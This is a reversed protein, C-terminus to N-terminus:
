RKTINNLWHECGEKRAKHQAQWAAIAKKGDESKM